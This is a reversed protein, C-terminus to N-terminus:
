KPFVEKLKPHLKDRVRYISMYAAPNDRKKAGEFAMRVGFDAYEAKLGVSSLAQRVAERTFASEMPALFDIERLASIPTNLGINPLRRDLLSSWWTNVSPEAPKGQGGSQAAKRRRQPHTQQRIVTVPSPGPTAWQGEWVANDFAAQLEPGADPCLMRRLEALGGGDGPTGTGTTVAGQFVAMMAHALVVRQLVATNADMNRRDVHGLTAWPDSCMGQLFETLAPIITSEARDCAALAQAREPSEPKAELARRQRPFDEVAALFPAFGEQKMLYRFWEPGLAPNLRLEM